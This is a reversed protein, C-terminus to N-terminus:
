CYCQPPFCPFDMASLPFYLRQNVWVGRKLDKRNDKEEWFSNISKIKEERKQIIENNEDFFHSM